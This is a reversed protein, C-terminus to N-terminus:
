ANNLNEIQSKSIQFRAQKEKFAERNIEEKNKGEVKILTDTNYGYCSKRLDTHFYPFMWEDYKVM